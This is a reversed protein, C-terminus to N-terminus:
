NRLRNEFTSSKRWRRVHNFQPTNQANLSFELIIHVGSGKSAPQSTDRSGLCWVGSNRCLMTKVPHHYFPKSINGASCTFQAFGPAWAMVWTGPWNNLTVTEMHRFLDFPLPFVAIVPLFGLTGQGDHQCLLYVFPRRGTQQLSHLFYNASQSQVCYFLSLLM